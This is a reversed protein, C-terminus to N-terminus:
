KLTLLGAEKAKPDFRIPIKVGRAELATLVETEVRRAVQKLIKIKGPEDSAAYAAEDEATMQIKADIAQNWQSEEANGPPLAGAESIWAERIDELASRSPRDITQVKVWHCKQPQRVLHQKLSLAVDRSYGIYQLTQDQDFIAYVGIQHDFRDAICGDELYPVFDLTNLQPITM